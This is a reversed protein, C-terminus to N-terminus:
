LKQISYYQAKLEARGLIHLWLKDFKCFYFSLGSFYVLM